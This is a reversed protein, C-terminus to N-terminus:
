TAGRAADIAADLDDGTVWDILVANGQHWCSVIVGRIWVGDFDAPPEEKYPIIARLARYREADARLKTVEAALAKIQQRQEGLKMADRVFHVELYEIREARAAHVLNNPNNIAADEFERVRARLKMNEDVMRAVDDCSASKYDPHMDRAAKASEPTNAMAVVGCAALRMRETELEARLKEVEVEANRTRTEWHLMYERVSANRISVEVIGATLLIESDARLKTVEARLSQIEGCCDAAHMCANFPSNLTELIDSM